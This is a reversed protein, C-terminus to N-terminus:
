RNMAKFDFKGSNVEVPLLNIKGKVCGDDDSLLDKFCYFTVADSENTTWNISKADDSM